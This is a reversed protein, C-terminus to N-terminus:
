DSNPKIAVVKGTAMARQLVLERRQSENVSALDKIEKMLGDIESRLQRSKEREAILLEHKQDRQARTAKGALSRIEEAIDPYRLHLLAPTVGAEKAVGAITIKEKRVQLRVLAYKLESATKERDRPRPDKEDPSKDTM